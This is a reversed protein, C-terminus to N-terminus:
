GSMILWPDMFVLQGNARQMVNSGNLDSTGNPLTKAFAILDDVTSMFLKWKGEGLTQRLGRLTKIDAMSMSAHLYSVYPAKATTHVKMDDAPDIAFFDSVLTPFNRKFYPQEYVSLFRGLCNRLPRPTPHLLETHVQAYIVNDYVYTQYGWIKPLFPNSSNRTCYEEWTKLALQGPSLQARGKGKLANGFVKIVENNADNIYARQDAGKGLLRFGQQEMHADLEPSIYSKEYLFQAFRGM